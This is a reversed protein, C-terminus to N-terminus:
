KRKAILGHHVAFLALELRNYVGLKDFINTVHHKVTQESISFKEAIERNTLGSVVVALIEMERHTLRFNKPRAAEESQFSEVDVIQALDSVAERVVWYQGAMVARICKYLSDINSDKPMVGKAGLRFADSAQGREIAAALLIIRLKKNKKAISGLTEIASIHPMQLDLLLIDPKLDEALQVVEQGEATEGVVRFGPQEQLLSRVGERLLTHGDAIMIRIETTPRAM